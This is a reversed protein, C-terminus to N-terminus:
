DYIQGKLEHTLRYEAYSIFTKHSEYKFQVRNRYTIGYIEQLMAKYKWYEVGSLKCFKGLFHSTSWDDLERDTYGYTGKAIARGLKRNKEDKHFLLRKLNYKDKGTAAM